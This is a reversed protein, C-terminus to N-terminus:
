DITSSLRDLRRGMEDVNEMDAPDDEEVPFGTIEFGGGSYKSFLWSRCWYAKIIQNTESVSSLLLRM